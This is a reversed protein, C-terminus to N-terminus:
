VFPVELSLEFLILGMSLEEFLRGAGRGVLGDISQSLGYVERRMHGAAICINAFGKRVVEDGQQLAVM